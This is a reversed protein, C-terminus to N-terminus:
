LTRMAFIIDVMQGEVFVIDSFNADSGFVGVNYLFAIQIEAVVVAMTPCIVGAGFASAIKQICRPLSQLKQFMACHNLAYDNNQSPNRVLM